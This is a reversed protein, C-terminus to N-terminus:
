TSETNQGILLEQTANTTARSKKGDLVINEGEAKIENSARRASHRIKVPIGHIGNLQSRKNGDIDVLDRLLNARLLLRGIRGFGNIACKPKAM